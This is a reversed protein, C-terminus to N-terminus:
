RIEKWNEFKADFFFHIDFDTIYAFFIGQRENLGFVIRSTDELSNQNKAMWKRVKAPVKRDGDMFECTISKFPVISSQGVVGAMQTADWMGDVDVTNRCDGFYRLKTIAGKFETPNRPLGSDEPSNNEM